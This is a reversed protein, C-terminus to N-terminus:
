KVTMRGKPRVHITLPPYDLLITTYIGKVLRTGEKTVHVDLFGRDPAGNEDSYYLPVDKKLIGGADRDSIFVGADGGSQIETVAFGGPAIREAMREGYLFRLRVDCLADTTENFITVKVHPYLLWGLVPIFIGFVLAAAALVLAIRRLTSGAPIQKIAWDEGSTGALRAQFGPM